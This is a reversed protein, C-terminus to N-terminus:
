RYALKEHQATKRGPDRYLLNGDENWFCFAGIWGLISTVGSGGGSRHVIRQRFDLVLDSDAGDFTLVFCKIVSQSPLAM